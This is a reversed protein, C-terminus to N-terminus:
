APQVFTEFKLEDEYTLGDEMLHPDASLFVPEEIAAGAATLAHGELANRVALNLAYLAQADPKRIQTFVSFVARDLDSDKGGENTLAVLGIIVLGKNGPQTDEPPNQWVDALDTVGASAELAGFAGVQVASQSDIM